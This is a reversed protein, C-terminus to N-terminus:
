GDFFIGSIKKARERAALRYPLPQILQWFLLAM